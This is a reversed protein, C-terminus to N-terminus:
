PTSPRRHTRPILSAATFRRPSNAPIATLPAIPLPSDAQIAIAILELLQNDATRPMSPVGAQDPPRRLSREARRRSAQRARYETDAQSRPRARGGARDRAISRTRSPRPTRRSGSRCQDEPAAASRRRLQDGPAVPRRSASGGLCGPSRPWPRNATAPAVAYVASARAAGSGRLPAAILGRLKRRVVGRSRPETWVRLYAESSIARFGVPSTRSRRRPLVTCRRAGSGRRRCAASGSGRCSPRPSSAPGRRPPAASRARPRGGRYRAAAPRRRGRGLVLRGEVLEGGVPELRHLVLPQPAVRQEVVLPLQGPVQQRVEGLVRQRLDRDGLDVAVALQLDALARDVRGRDVLRDLPQRLDEVDRTSRSSISRLGARPLRRRSFCRFGTRVVRSRASCISASTEAARSSSRSARTSRRALEAPPTARSATTRRRESRRPARAQAPGVDVQGGAPHPDAVRLGVGADALDVQQRDQALLERHQLRGGGVWGM